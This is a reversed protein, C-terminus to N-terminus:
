KELREVWPLKIIKFIGASILFLVSFIIHLLDLFFIFDLSFYVGKQSAIIKLIGSVAIVALFLIIGFGQRTIRYVGRFQMFYRTTYYATLTLLIIAGAYHINHTIYYDATWRFGPISSVYYRKYLPMQGFGTIALAALTAIAIWRAYKLSKDTSNNM